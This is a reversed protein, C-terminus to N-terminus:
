MRLLAGMPALPSGSMGGGGPAPTTSTPSGSSCTAWSTRAFVSGPTRPSPSTASSRPRTPASCAQSCGNTRGSTARTGTEEGGGGAHVIIFADVFGNGDNDYPGFNVGPDAAVAADNALDRARTTGTPRGTGFNGNAYWALTQPMRLPGAVEGTIDVLGNTVGRYYEKVSGNPLVGTSFFLDRIHDATTTM